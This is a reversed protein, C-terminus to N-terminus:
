KECKALQEDDLYNRGFEMRFDEVSWGNEEMAKKQGYERLAQMTEPNRHAARKGDLHCESHCLYVVLGYKESKKRLAGGFIHHKDLPDRCGNRGCLWCEHEMAESGKM